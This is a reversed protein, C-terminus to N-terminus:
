DRENSQIHTVLVNYATSGPMFFCATELKQKDSALLERAAALKGHEETLAQFHEEIAQMAM